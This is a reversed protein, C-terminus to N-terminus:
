KFRVKKEQKDSSHKRENIIKQKLFNYNTKKYASLHKNVGLRLESVMVPLNSFIVEKGIERKGYNRTTYILNVGNASLINNAYIEMIDPCMDYSLIWPKTLTCLYDRLELHDKNQFYYPYLSKAKNFFPPDLYFLTSAPLVGKNQNLLIKNLAKKWDLNWVFEVRDRFSSIKTIRDIITKKNFRCDIKYKSSQNKGGIPGANNKLIGSFNTRNLFLCKFAMERITTPNSKKIKEWQTLTVDANKVCKVIWETDFFITQWLASLLPDIENIGIKKVVDMFLLAISVSASGAFPEVFLDVPLNNIEIARDVYGVIWRKAGPYRLPSIPAANIKKHNAM